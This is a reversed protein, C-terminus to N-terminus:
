YEFNTCNQAKEGFNVKSNEIKGLKADCRLLLHWEVLELAGSKNATYISTNSCYWTPPPPNDNIKTSFCKTLHAINVIYISTILQFFCVWSVLGVLLLVILKLSDDHSHHFSLHFTFPKLQALSRARASTVCGCFGLSTFKKITTTWSVNLNISNKMAVGFALLKNSYQM